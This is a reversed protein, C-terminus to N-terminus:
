YVVISATRTPSHVDLFFAIKINPTYTKLWEWTTFTFTRCQNQVKWPLESKQLAQCNGASSKSMAKCFVPTSRIGLKGILEVPGALM